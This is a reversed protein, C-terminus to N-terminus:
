LDRHRVTLCCRFVNSAFVQGAGGHVVAISWVKEGNERDVGARDGLGARGVGFPRASVHASGKVADGHYEFVIDIHKAQGARASRTSKKIMSRAEIRADGGAHALAPGNHETFGIEVLKREAIKADAGDTPCNSVCIVRREACTEDLRAASPNPVSVQLESEFGDPNAESAVIRTVRPSTLRAPTIGSL